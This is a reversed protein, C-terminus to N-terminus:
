RSGNETSPHRRPNIETTIISAHGLLRQIVRLDAGNELMNTAAPHHPFFNGVFANDLYLKWVMWLRTQDLRLIKRNSLISITPLTTKGGTTRKTPGVKHMM